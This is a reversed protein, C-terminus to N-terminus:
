QLQRWGFETIPSTRGTIPGPDDPQCTTCQSGTGSGTGGQKGAISVFEGPRGTKIMLRDSRGTHWRSVGAEESGTFGGGDTDFMPKSPPNGTVIDLLTLYEKASTATPECSETNASDQSGSAPVRSRMYLLSNTLMGGNNVSREGFVPWDM